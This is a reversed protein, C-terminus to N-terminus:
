KRKFTYVTCYPIKMQDQMEYGRESMYNIFSTSDMFREVYTYTRHYQRGDINVHGWVRYEVRILRFTDRSLVKQAIYDKGGVSCLEIEFYEDQVESYTPDGDVLTEIYLSKYQPGSSDLIVVMLVLWILGVVIIPYPKHKM